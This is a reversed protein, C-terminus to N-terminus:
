PSPGPPKTGARSSAANKLMTATATSAGTPPRSSRRRRRLLRGGIPALVAVALINFFGALLLGPVYGGPGDGYFPLLSLVIADVVTLACFAPWQWAGRM